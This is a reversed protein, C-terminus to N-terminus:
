VLLSDYWESFTMVPIGSSVVYDIIQKFLTEAVNGATPTEMIDHAYLFFSGGVQITKDIAATYSSLIGTEAVSFTHIKYLDYMPAYNFAGGSDRAAVYGMDIVVQRAMDSYSGPYVFLESARTIGNDLLFDRNQQIDKVAQTYTMGAINGHAKSHNLIDWGAAYMEQLNATTMYGATGITNMNIAVSAKIGSASLYPFAITYASAWGDDLILVFKPSEKVDRFISDLVVTATQGSVSNIVIKLTVFTDSWLATGTKITDTKRWRFSNWGQLMYNSPISYYYGGGGANLFYPVISSIKTKDPIYFHIEFNEADTLVESITCQIDAAASATVAVELATGGSQFQQTSQSLTCNNATFDATNKFSEIVSPLITYLDKYAKQNRKIDILDQRSIVGQPPM